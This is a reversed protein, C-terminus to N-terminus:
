ITTKRSRLNNQLEGPKVSYAMATEESIKGSRVLNALYTELTVMGVDSSTQIINDITHSKNERITNRVAPTATLIEFAPILGGGNSPLLRQSIVASLVSSLQLRIQDKTEAPFVDIIRDVTQAASNTHLTSFVLHGTEAVTLALSITKLDRMEGVFVVDPDQRLCSRLARSFSLTDNGLERQSILSRKSSIVYEIPDEITVIHCPRSQAIRNIVSAVTTSKGSGTPGTLLVFGQNLDVLSSMFKPLNLEDFDPVQLPIIRIAASPKGRQLYVNVRFRWEGMSFSFDVEKKVKVKRSKAEDLLLWILEEIEEAEIGSMSVDLLQSDVRLKPLSGASLHVDTAKNAIALELIKKIKENM